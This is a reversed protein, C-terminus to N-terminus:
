KRILQTIFNCAFTITTIFSWATGSTTNDRSMTKDHVVTRDFAKSQVTAWVTAIIYAGLITIDILLLSAAHIARAQAIGM